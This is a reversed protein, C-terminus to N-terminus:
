SKKIIQSYEVWLDFLMMLAYADHPCDLNHSSYKIIDEFDPERGHQDEIELWKGASGDINFQRVLCTNEHFYYPERPNYGREKIQENAFEQIRQRNEPSLKASFMEHAFAPDLLIGFDYSPQYVSYPQWILKKEM